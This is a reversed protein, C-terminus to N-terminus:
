KTTLGNVMTPQAMQTPTNVPAKSRELTINEMMDQVKLGIKWARVTSSIMKGNVRMDLVERTPIYELGMPRTILGNETTFIERLMSSNAKGKLLM